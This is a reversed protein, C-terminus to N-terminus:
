IFWFPLLCVVGHTLQPALLFEHAPYRILEDRDGCVGFSPDYIPSWLNLVEHPTTSRDSWWQPSSRTKLSKIERSRRITRWAKMVWMAVIKKRYVAAGYHQFTTLIQNFIHPFLVLIFCVCLFCVCVSFLYYHISNDYSYSIANKVSYLQSCIDCDATKTSGCRIPCNPEMDTLKRHIYM